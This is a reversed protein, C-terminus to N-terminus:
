IFGLRKAAQMYAQSNRRFGVTIVYVTVKSKIIKYVIRYKGVKLKWYGTLEWKLPKGYLEPHSSLKDKIAKIIHQQDYLTIKSFDKDFIEKDIVISYM